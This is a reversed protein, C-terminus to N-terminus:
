VNVEIEKTYNLIEVKKTIINYYKMKQLSIREKIETSKISKKQKKEKKNLKDGM